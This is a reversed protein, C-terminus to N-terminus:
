DYREKWSALPLVEVLRRLRQAAARRVAGERRQPELSMEAREDWEASVRATRIDPDSPLRATTKAALYRVTRM